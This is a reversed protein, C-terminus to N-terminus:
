IEESIGAYLDKGEKEEPTKMLGFLITVLAALGLLWPYFAVKAIAVPSLATLSMCLMMQGGHPIFSQVVCASIDLLSAGRKAAINYKRAFKMAVQSSVLIAITNNGMSVDVLGTLVGIGVEASKRSNIFKEFKAVLWDLGGFEKAFNSMGRIILAQVAISLMGSIGETCAASFGALNWAGTAFGIIGCLVTGLLLVLVVNMGLLATVFVAIYPVIKVISYEYVETIQGASGLIGYLVISVLAAPLAILFNMKFKDKMECGCTRTAAITTDSIISLNDGFMAGGLVAAIAIGYSAGTQNAVGIAVPGLAAITTMSSGLATALVASVIFVGAIALQPPIFTLCLGVTSDVGGMGKAAGSFAGATVYILLMLLSNQDASGKVLVDANKEIGEKNKGMLLLVLVGCLLAFERSIQKFPTEVGWISFIIGAGLYIALFTLLPIFYRAGQKKSEVIEDSM